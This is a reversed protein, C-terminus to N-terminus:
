DIEIIGWAKKDEDSPGGGATAMAMAPEHRPLRPLAYLQMERAVEEETPPCAHCHLRVWVRLLPDIFSYRKSRGLDSSCVDSSWDSLCRTHRRRSSFFFFLSM